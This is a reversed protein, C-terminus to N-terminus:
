QETWHQKCQMPCGIIACVCTRFAHYHKFDVCLNSTISSMLLKNFYVVAGLVDGIRCVVKVKYKVNMNRNLDFSRRFGATKM